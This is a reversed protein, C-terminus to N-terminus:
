QVAWTALSTGAPSFKQIRSSCWGEMVYSNGDSDLAIGTPFAPQGGQAGQPAFWGTAGDGTGWRTLATGDASFTQIRANLKDAVYLRGRLDVALGVPHRFQGPQDGKSGWAHLTKGEPSLILTTSNEDAVYVTGHADVAIGAPLAFQGPHTRDHKKGWVALPTGMASFTQIRNNGRDTVYVHGRGDVAVGVPSDLQGLGAGKAGWTALLTGTASVKYIRSTAPSVVYLAAQADVAIGTPHRLHAPVGGRLTWTALLTGTRSRKQIEIGSRADTYSAVYAVYVHAYADLAIGNADGYDMSPVCRASSVRAAGTAAAPLRTPHAHAGVASAHAKGRMGASSNPLLLVLGLVVCPMAQKM